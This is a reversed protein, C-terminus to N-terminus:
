VNLEVSNLTNMVEAGPDSGQIVYYGSKIHGLM